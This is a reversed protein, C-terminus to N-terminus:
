WPPAHHGWTYRGAHQGRDRSPARHDQGDQSDQGQAKKQGRNEVLDRSGSPVLRQQKVTGEQFAEDILLGQAAVLEHIPIFLAAVVTPLLELILQGKDIKAIQFPAVQQGHGDGPSGEVRLGNGGVALTQFDPGAVQAAMGARDYPEVFGDPNGGAHDEDRWDSLPMYNHIAVADVEGHAWFPDLHFFVDGSGDAPQHGFYESWDAGYSIKTGAGLVARIEGALACLAEVFPFADAADRLRSVGRMESGILFADVGGAAAALHAHHLIFRRFGWDDTAGTYFISEGVVSFDGAAAAGLFADVQTRAAATKDASAAEGPGPHCTIRGRWPYPAQEAGGYPDPLENGSPVDMMIFPHLTVRLGRAKIEKIAQVTAFDAPTGGYAAADDGRSVMQAQARALGGVNWDRSVDGLDNETVMPRIRCHGARLDDGFWAVVLSIEELNPYLAQLEDLSAVIPVDSAIPTLDRVRKGAQSSDIVAAVPNSGYRLIGEAMKANIKGFTGETFLAIPQAPDLM